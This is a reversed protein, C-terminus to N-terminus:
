GRPRFLLIEVIYFIQLTKEKKKGRLQIKSTHYDLLFVLAESSAAGVTELMSGQQRPDARAQHPRSWVGWGPWGKGPVLSGERAPTDQIAVLGGAGAGGLEQVQPRLIVKGGGFRPLQREREQSLLSSPM